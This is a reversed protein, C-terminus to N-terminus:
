ILDLVINRVLLELPALMGSTTRASVYAIGEVKDSPAINDGKMGCHVYPSVGACGRSRDISNVGSEVDGATFALMFGDIKGWQEQVQYEGDVCPAVILKIVCTEFFLLDWESQDNKYHTPWFEGSTLRRLYSSKGVNNDGVIVITFIPRLDVGRNDSFVLKEPRKSTRFPPNIPSMLPAFSRPRSRLSLASPPSLAPSLTLSPAPPHFKELFTKRKMKGRVAGRRCGTPTRESGESRETRLFAGRAGSCFV